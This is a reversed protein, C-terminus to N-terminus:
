AHSFGDVAGVHRGLDAADVAQDLAALEGFGAREAVRQQHAMRVADLAPQERRADALLAAVVVAHQVSRPAREREIGRVLDRAEGLDLRAHM